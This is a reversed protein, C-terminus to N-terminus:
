LPKAKLAICWFFRNREYGAWQFQELLQEKFDKRCLWISGDPNRQQWAHFSSFLDALTAKDGPKGVDCESYLWRTVQVDM